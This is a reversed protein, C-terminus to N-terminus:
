HRLAITALYPSLILIIKLGWHSLTRSIVSCQFLFLLSHLEQRYQQFITLRPQRLIILQVQSETSASPCFNSEWEWRKNQQLGKPYPILQVNGLRRPHSKFSVHLDRTQARMVSSVRLIRDLKESFHLGRHGTIISSLAGVCLLLFRCFHAVEFVSQPQQLIYPYFFSWM